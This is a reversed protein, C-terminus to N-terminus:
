LAASVEAETPNADDAVVEVSVLKRIYEDLSPPVTIGQQKCSEYAFFCLDEYGIGAALDSAKRKNKREWLVVTFLTTDVQYQGNQDTVKLTLQM